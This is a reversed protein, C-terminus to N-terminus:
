MTINFAISIREEDAQSSKVGHILHSRFILMQGAKPEYSVSLRNLENTETKPPEIMNNANPSYLILPSCDKPTKVFYIGSFVSNAHNHPEQSNGAKYVNLWCENIKIPYQNIDFGLSHAYNSAEHHIIDRLGSFEQQELINISSGITTYVDGIWSEPQSNPENHKIRKVGQLINKNFQEADTVETVQVPTPFLAHITRNKPMDM